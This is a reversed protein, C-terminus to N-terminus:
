GVEEAIAAEHGTVCSLIAQLDSLTVVVPDDQSAPAPVPQSAEVLRDYRTM